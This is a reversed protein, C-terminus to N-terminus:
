PTANIIVNFEVVVNENVGLEGLAYAPAVQVPLANEGADADQFDVEVDAGNLDIGDGDDAGTCYVWVGDNSRNAANVQVRFADGNANEATGTIGNIFNPDLATNGDLTDTIETLIASLSSTAANTITITYRVYAGPIRKPNTGNNFPDRIVAHAKAVTIDATGIEYTAEASYAADRAGDTAGAGDGFVTDVSGPTDAGATQTLAAGQAAAGGGAIATATLTMNALDGDVLPSGATDNPITSVIYITEVNASGAATASLEDIYRGTGTPVVTDTGDQYGAGGGTEYYLEYSAVDFDDGGDEAVTLLFDQVDNGTNTLDFTLVRLTQSPQVIVNGGSQDTLTLAVLKDVEFDTTNSDIDTQATSGVSYSLTAQNTINTDSAVGIALANQAGFLLLGALMLGILSFRKMNQM